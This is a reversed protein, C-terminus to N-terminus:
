WSGGGGGSCIGGLLGGALEVLGRGVLEAAGGVLDGVIGPGGGAAPLPLPAAAATTPPAQAGGAAVSETPGPQPRLGLGASPARPAAAAAPQMEGQPLNVERGFGAGAAVGTGGRVPPAALAVDQIAQWPVAEPYRVHLHRMIALSEANLTDAGGLPAAMAATAGGSGSGGGGGGAGFNFGNLNLDLGDLAGRRGEGGADVFGAGGGAGPQAFAPARCLPCSSRPNDRNEFVLDLCATHFRHRCPLTLADGAIPVPGGEVAVQGPPPALEELCIACTPADFAAPPAVDAVAAVSGAGALRAAHAREIALLRSRTRAWSTKAAAPTVWRFHSWAAAYFLLHALPWASPSFMLGVVLAAVASYGAFTATAAVPGIADALQSFWHAANWLAYAAGVAICWWSIDVVPKLFSFGAAAPPPLPAELASRVQAAALLLAPGYQRARLLPRM